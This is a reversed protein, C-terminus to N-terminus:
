AHYKAEHVNLVTEVWRYITPHLHFIEDCKHCPGGVGGYVAQEEGPKSDRECHFIPYACFRCSTFDVTRGKPPRHTNIAIIKLENLFAETMPGVVQLRAQLGGRGHDVYDHAGSPLL